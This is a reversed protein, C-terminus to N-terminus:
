AGKAQFFKALRDADLRTRVFVIVQEMKYADIIKKLLIPKLKKIGNSIGEPSNPKPDTKGHIGDTVFQTGKV